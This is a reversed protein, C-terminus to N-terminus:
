VNLGYQVWINPSRPYPIKRSNECAKEMGIVQRRLASTFGWVAACFDDLNFMGDPTIISSGPARWVSWISFFTALMAWSFTGVVKGYTSM